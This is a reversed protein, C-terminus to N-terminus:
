YSAIRSTPPQGSGYLFDLATYYGPTYPGAISVMGRATGTFSSIQNGTFFPNSLPAFGSVCSAIASFNQNVLGADTTQGNAFMNPVTCSQALAPASGLLAFIVGVLYVRRFMM